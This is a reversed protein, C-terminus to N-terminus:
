TLIDTLHGFRRVPSAKLQFGAFRGAPFPSPTLSLTQTHPPPSLPPPIIVKSALAVEQLHGLLGFGTIDTCSTAGFERLCKAAEASSQQMSGIAGAM